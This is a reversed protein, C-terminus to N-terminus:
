PRASVRKGAPKLASAWTAVLDMADHIADRSEAKAEKASATKLWLQWYALIHKQM